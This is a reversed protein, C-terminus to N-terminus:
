AHVIKGAIDYIHADTVEIRVIEGPSAEGDNIYTVGDIDPAQFMARSELLLETEQSLGEVLVDIRKGILGKLRESSITQQIEMIEHLRKEAKQPPVKEPMEFARTGEEDSYAFCGLHDFPHDQIFDRLQNFDDQSEGPFGAIVTTRLFADEINSRIMRIVQALDERDYRRNMSELINDSAHQIPMDFYSCIRSNSAVKEVLRMDIRSPYLYLMRLWPLDTDSIIHELLDPLRAGQWTYATLDQAALTIEKAGAEVLINIEEIIEAPPRCLQNGRISPILCYACRNSCGESIKVYARWPPTTIMRDQFIHGMETGTVQISTNLAAVVRRGLDNYDSVGAFIDVEPLEDALGKGYRQVLCGTVAILQGDRRQSAADLIAEISEEVSAQIFGCTNILIVTASEQDESISLRGGTANAISALGVETDIRNKPCGLSIPYISIDM